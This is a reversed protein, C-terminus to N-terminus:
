YVHYKLSKSDQVHGVEEGGAGGIEINYVAHTAADAHFRWARMGGNFMSIPPAPTASHSSTVNFPLVWWVECM